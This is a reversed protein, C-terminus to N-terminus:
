ILFALQNLHFLNVKPFLANKKDYDFKMDKNKYSSSFKHYSTIKWNWLDILFVASQHGGLRLMYITMVNFM